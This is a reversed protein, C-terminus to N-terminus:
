SGLLSSKGLALSNPDVGTPGTLMTGVGGGRAAAGASQMISGVNPSQRNAKNIAMERGRQEAQAQATAQNQADKQRGLAAKQQKKADEGAAITYGTAALSGAVGAVALGGIAAAAATGATAGLAVGITSVAAIAGTM